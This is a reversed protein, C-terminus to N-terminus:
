LVDLTPPPSSCSQSQRRRGREWPKWLIVSFSKVQIEQGGVEGEVLKFFLICVMGADPLKLIPSVRYPSSIALEPLGDGDLDGISALALGFEDGNHAELGTGCASLDIHLLLSAEKYGVIVVPTAPTAPAMATKMIRLLYM